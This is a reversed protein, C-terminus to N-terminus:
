PILAEDDLSTAAALAAAAQAYDAHADTADDQLTKLARRADLLDALTLGGHAYATEVAQETSRGREILDGDFRQARQSAARLDANARRVDALASVRTKALKATAADIDTYARRVEGEYSNGTFLPISVGVGLLTHGFPDPNHEYQGSFTIDRSQQAQALDLAAQAAQVRHNAALMDPRQELQTQVDALKGVAVRPWADTASLADSQATADLLAAIAVQAERLTGQAADVANDTEAAEIRMREVDLRPMDGLKLRQESGQLSRQEVAALSQESIYKEEARKLEWYAQTVALRETRLTDALDAHAADANADAQALRHKRKGGREFPQSLNLITDYQKDWLSGDGNHGATNIKATSYSLTANPREGGIIKDALAQDVAVQALTINPDRVRMLDLARKLSLGGELTPDPDAAHCALALSIGLLVLCPQTSPNPM